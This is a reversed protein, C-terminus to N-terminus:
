LRGRVGERIYKPADVMVESNGVLYKIRDRLAVVDSCNMDIVEVYGGGLRSVVAIRTNSQFRYDVGVKAYSDLRKQTDELSNQLSALKRQTKTKFSYFEFALIAVVGGLIAAFLAVQYVEPM